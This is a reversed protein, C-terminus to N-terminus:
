LLKRWTKKTILSDIFTLIALDSEILTLALLCISGNIRHVQKNREDFPLMKHM